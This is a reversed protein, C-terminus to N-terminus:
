GKNQLLAAINGFLMLGSLVAAIFSLTIDPVIYAYHALLVTVLLSILNIM